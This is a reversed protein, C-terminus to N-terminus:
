RPPSRPGSRASASQRRAPLTQARLRTCCGSGALARPSLGRRRRLHVDGCVGEFGVDDLLRLGQGDDDVEPGVPAARALRQRRHQLLRDALAVPLDGECLDVGVRVGVQRHAVVDPADGVDLGEAVALHHVLEDARDRGGRGVGEEVLEGAGARGLAQELLELRRALEGLDEAREGLLVVLPHELGQEAAEAAGVGVLALPDPLDHDRKRRAQGPADM